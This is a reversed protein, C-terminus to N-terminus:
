KKSVEALLIKPGINRDRVRLNWGSHSQQENVIKLSAQLQPLVQEKMAENMARQIQSTVSSM